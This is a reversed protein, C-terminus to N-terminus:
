VINKRYIYLKRLVYILIIFFFAFAIWGNEAIIRVSLNHTAYGYLLEFQGPGIGLIHSFGLMLGTLQFYFRESDYSQLGNGASNSFRLYLQNQVSDGFFIFTLLLALSGLIVLIATHTFLKRYVVTYFLYILLTITVNLLAARSMSALLVFFLLFALSVFIFYKISFFSYKFVKEILLLIALILYPSFDNPDNFFGRAQIGMFLTGINVVLGSLEIIVAISSILTSIIYGWIISKFEIETRILVAIFYFIVLMYFTHIFFSLGKNIDSSVLVSLLSVMIFAAFSYNIFRLDQLYNLKKQKMMFYLPFILVFLLDFPKLPLNM